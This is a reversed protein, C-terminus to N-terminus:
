LPPWAGHLPPFFASWAQTQKRSLMTPELVSRPLAFALHWSFTQLWHRVTVVHESFNYIWNLCCLLLLPTYIHYRYPGEWSCPSIGTQTAPLIKLSRFLRAGHQQFSSCHCVNPKACLHYFEAKVEGFLKLGDKQPCLKMQRVTLPLMHSFIKLLCYWCALVKKTQVGLSAAFCIQQDLDASWVSISDM